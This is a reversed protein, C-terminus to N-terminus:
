IRTAELSEAFKAILGSVLEPNEEHILHRGALTAIQANPIEKAAATAASPLVITDGAAILFSIPCDYDPLKAPL